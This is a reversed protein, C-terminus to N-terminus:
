SLAIHSPHSIIGVFLFAPRRVACNQGFMEDAKEQDHADIRHWKSHRARLQDAAVPPKGVTMPCPSEGSAPLQEADLRGGAADDGAM